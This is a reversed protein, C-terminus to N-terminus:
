RRRVLTLQGVAVGHVDTIANLSGTPLIGITLGVDRARPRIEDASTTSMSLFGGFCVGVMM